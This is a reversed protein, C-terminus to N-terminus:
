FVFPVFDITQEGHVSGWAWERLDDSTLQYATPVPTTLMYELLAGAMADVEAYEGLREFVFTTTLLRGADVQAEALLGKRRFPLIRPQDVLYPAHFAEIIPTMGAFYGTDLAAAGILHHFQMDCWGEHPFARTIPHGNILTAQYDVIPGMAFPRCNLEDGQELWLVRRGSKLFDVITDTMCLTIVVDALRIDSENVHKIFPFTEGWKGHKGDPDYLVVTREGPDLIPHPFVWLDWENSLKHFEDTLMVQLVYRAARSSEPLTLSFPTIDLV